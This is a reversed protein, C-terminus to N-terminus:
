AVSGYNARGRSVQDFPECTVTVENLSPSRIVISM